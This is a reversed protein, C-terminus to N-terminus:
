AFIYKEVILKTERSPGEFVSISHCYINQIQRYGQEKLFPPFKSLFMECMAETSASTGQLNEDENLRDNLQYVFRGLHKQFEVTDLSYHSDAYDSVINGKLEFNV